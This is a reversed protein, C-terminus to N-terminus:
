ARDFIYDHEGANFRHTAIRRPNVLYRRAAAQASRARISGVKKWNLIWTEGAKATFITFTKM